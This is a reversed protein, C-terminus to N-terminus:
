VQRRADVEEPSFYPNLIQQMERGHGDLKLSYRFAISKTIKPVNPDQLILPLKASFQIKMQERMQTM